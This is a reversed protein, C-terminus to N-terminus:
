IKNQQIRIISDCIKLERKQKYITNKLENIYKDKCSCCKHIPPLPFM